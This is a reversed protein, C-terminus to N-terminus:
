VWNPKRSPVRIYNSSVWPKSAVYMRYAETTDITNDYKFQDPMARTFETVCQYQEVCDYNTYHKFMSAAVDLTTRCSHVRGYRYRYEDCLAFGHVLLWALNNYNKAAWITCPHNRFSGKKTSYPTGDSKPITGWNYYWSSYIISIMQATELPMKVIHKDPLQFASVYPDSDVVFINM